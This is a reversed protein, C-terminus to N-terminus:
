CSSEQVRLSEFNPNKPGRRARNRPWPQSGRAPWRRVRQDLAEPTAEPGIEPCNQNQIDNQPDPTHNLANHPGYNTPVDNVASTESIRLQNRETQPRFRIMKYAGKLVHKEWVRRWSGDLDISRPRNEGLPNMNLGTQSSVGRKPQIQLLTKKVVLPSFWRSRCLTTPKGESPEYEAGNPQFSTNKILKPLNILFFM